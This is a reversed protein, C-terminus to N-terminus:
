DAIVNIRAFRTLGDMESYVWLIYFALLCLYPSAAALIGSIAMQLSSPHTPPQSDSEPGMLVVMGDNDLLNTAGLIVKKWFEVVLLVILIMKIFTLILDENLPTYLHHIENHIYKFKQKHYKFLPQYFQGTLNM